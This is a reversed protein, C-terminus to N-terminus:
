RNDGPQFGTMPTSFALGPATADFFTALAPLLKSPEVNLVYHGADPIVAVQANPILRAIEACHEIRLWDHDGVAILVPSRISRLDDDSLRRWQPVGRVKAFLVPWQSPDAAVAQYHERQFMFIASDATPPPTGAPPRAVEPRLAQPLDRYATGYTALRRVLGPHRLTLELAVCGGNCNGFVDVEDIRLHRLLAATDDAATEFSYPLELGTSRGHGRLDPSIWQRNPPLDVIGALGWAPHIYLAPPGSGEIEYYMSFGNIDARGPKAASARPARSM